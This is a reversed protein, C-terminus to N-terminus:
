KAFDALLQNWEDQKEGFFEFTRLLMLGSEFAKPAPKKLPLVLEELVTALTGGPGMFNAMFGYLELDRGLRKGNLKVFTAAGIQPKASDDEENKVIRLQTDAACMDSALERIRDLFTKTNRDNM